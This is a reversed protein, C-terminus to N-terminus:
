ESISTKKRQNPTPFLIVDGAFILDVNKINPNHNKVYELLTEHTAGYIMNCLSRLTDKEKVQVIIPFIHPPSEHWDQNTVWPYTASVVKSASPLAAPSPEEIAALVPPIELAVAELPAETPAPKVASANKDQLSISEVPELLSELNTPNVDSAFLIESADLLSDSVSDAISFSTSDTASQNLSAILSTSNPLIPAAASADAAEVEPSQYQKQQAARNEGSQSNDNSAQPQAEAQHRNIQTLSAFYPYFRNDRGWLYFAAVMLVCVAAPAWIWRSKVFSIRLATRRNFSWPKEFDRIVEKVIKHTVVRSQYGMAAVLANDCLINILRPIGKAHKIIRHLAKKEFLTSAEAGNASVAIRHHIYEMSEKPTLANLYARVSIRQKFQRLEHRGLIEALEPQGILLIQLLKANRTELNTLMRLQELTEVPTNQAEDLILVVIKGQQYHDILVESLQR